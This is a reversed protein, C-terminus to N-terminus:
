DDDKPLFQRIVRRAVDRGEKDLKQFDRYLPDAPAGHGEPDDTRGLLYDTTVGLADALRKLNDFSPKRKGTEFHSIASSQLKAAGALQEQNMNRMERAFKLRAPFLDSPKTSPSSMKM